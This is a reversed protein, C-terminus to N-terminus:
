PQNPRRIGDILDKLEELPLNFFERVDSHPTFNVPNSFTDISANTAISERVLFKFFEVNQKEAVDEAIERQFVIARFKAKIAFSNEEFVFGFNKKVFKMLIKYGLKQTRVFTKSGEPCQHWFEMFLEQYDYDKFDGITKYFIGELLDEFTGEHLYRRLLNVVTMFHKQRPWRLFYHFVLGLTSSHDIERFNFPIRSILFCAVAAQDKVIGHPCYRFLFQYNFSDYIMRERQDCKLKGLFFKTASLYGEEVAYKFLRTHDLALSRRYDTPMEQIYYNWYLVIPSQDSNKYNRRAYFFRRESLCMHKWLSRVESEFCYFCALTFRKRIDLAGNKVLIEATREYDITVQPTWCFCTIWEIGTNMEHYIIWKHIEFCIPWLNELVIDIILHPVDIQNLMRKVKDRLRRWQNESFGVTTLYNDTNRIMNQVDETGCVSIAVRVAALYQLDQLDVSKMFKNITKQFMAKRSM